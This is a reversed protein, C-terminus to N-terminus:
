FYFFMINFEERLADLLIDLQTQWFETIRRHNDNRDWPSIQTACPLLTQALIPNAFSEGM